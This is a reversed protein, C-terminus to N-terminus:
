PFLEEFPVKFIDRLAKIEAAYIHRQGVEIKAYASRTVDCNRTQLQAAVAEQTLQRGERLARIRQGMAYDYSFDVM